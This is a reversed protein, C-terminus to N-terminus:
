ESTQEFAAAYKPPLPRRQFKDDVVLHASEGEALLAQDAARLVQYGFYVLPGRLRTVRTRVLIEDDYFAPAKYRVHLDAVPLYCNDQLEMDRYRLGAQRLLEVRGIEFWIAFNAHYVVGQRDTEAYRVRLRTEGSIWRAARSLKGDM